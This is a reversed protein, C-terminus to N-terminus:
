DSHSADLEKFKINSQRGEEQAGDAPWGETEEDKQAIEKSRPDYGSSGRASTANYGHLHKGRGAMM